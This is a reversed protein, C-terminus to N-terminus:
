KNLQAGINVGSLDIKAQGTLYTITIVLIVLHTSVIAVQTTSPELGLEKIIIVALFALMIGLIAFSYKKSVRRKAKHTEKISLIEM